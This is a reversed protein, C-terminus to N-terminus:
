GVPGDRGGCAALLLVRVLPGAPSMGTPGECYREAPRVLVPLAPLLFPHPLHWRHLDMGQRLPVLTPNRDNGSGGDGEGPGPRERIGEPGAMHQRGPGWHGDGGVPPLLLSGVAGPRVRPAFGRSSSFSLVLAMCLREVVMMPAPTATATRPAAM